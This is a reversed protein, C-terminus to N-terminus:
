LNRRFLVFSLPLLAVLAVYPALSTRTRQETVSVAPGKGLFARAAAVIAGKDDPSFVRGGGAGAIREAAEKSTPDPRYAPDPASRTLFIQERAGWIRVFLVHVHHRRLAGSLIVDDFPRSEGDSLVILLRKRTTPKFYNDTAANSLPTYDTALENEGQPPPREIAISARLTSAFVQMDLTPFLHPLLRDNLSAVGIALEPLLGRLTKGDRRARELRMPASASARASM